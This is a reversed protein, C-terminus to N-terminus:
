TSELRQRAFPLTRTCGTQCFWMSWISRRNHVIQDFNQYDYVNKDPLKYKAKWAKAKAPHGTVIGALRCFQSAELGDALVSAYNGLGCLAINLKKGSSSAPGISGLDPKRVHPDSPLIISALGAAGALQLQGLFSKRTYKETSSV